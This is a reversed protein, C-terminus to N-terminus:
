LDEENLDDDLDTEEGEIDQSTDTGVGVFIM